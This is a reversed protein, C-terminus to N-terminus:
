HPHHEEFDHDLADLEERTSPPPADEPNLDELERNATEPYFVLIVVVLIAPAIGLISIAPGYSGFRSEDALLGAALLGIGSGLVALINLGGGAKGRSGTPFLEPGYVGLAPVAIAGILTGFTSFAWITWGSSRYMLVTFGVGAAVGIAGIIKRGYRDALFGGVIISIGGPVNTIVQMLTIQGGTYGHETKLHDNLFNSSPALFINFLFAGAGLILFRRTHSVDRLPMGHEAIQEEHVEFRRTEPLGRAIRLAPVIFVLPVAFFIRWAYPTADAFGLFVVVGGAGLAGSMTLM